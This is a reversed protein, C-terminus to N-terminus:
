GLQVDDELAVARVYFHPGYASRAIKEFRDDPANQVNANM